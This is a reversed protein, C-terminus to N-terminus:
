FLRCDRRDMFWPVRLETVPANAGKPPPGIFLHCNVSEEIEGMGGAWSRDLLKDFEHTSPDAFLYDHELGHVGLLTEGDRLLLSAPVRYYAGSEKRDDIGGDSEASCNWLFMVRFYCHELLAGDESVRIATLGEPETGDLYTYPVGAEVAGREAPSDKPVVMQLKGCNHFANYGVETEPSLITVRELGICSVFASERIRKVSRPITLEKLDHCGFFAWAGIEELGESFVIRQLHASWFGRDRIRKVAPGCRLEELWEGWAEQYGIATESAPIAVQEGNEFLILTDTGSVEAANTITKEQNM